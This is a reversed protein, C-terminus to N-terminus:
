SLVEIGWPHGGSPPQARRGYFRSQPCSLFLSLQFLLLESGAEGGPFSEHFRLTALDLHALATLETPQQAFRQGPLRRGRKLPKGLVSSLPTSSPIALKAAANFSSARAARSHSATSLASCTM